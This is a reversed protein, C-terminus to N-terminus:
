FIQEPIEVREPKRPAPAAPQQQGGGAHNPQRRPALDQERQYQFGGQAGNQRREGAEAPNSGESKGPLALDAEKVNAPKDWEKSPTGELVRHMFDIWMPLAVNTATEGEGLESMKRIM